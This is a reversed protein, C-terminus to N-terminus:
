FTMASTYLEAFSPDTALQVLAADKAMASASERLGCNLLLMAAGGLAANGVIKINSLMDKPLLGIRAANQINLYSGFGGALYIETLEGIEADCNKLLTCIGAFLAAKALQVARVDDQTIRVNPAIDAYTDEMFGTNDIIGLDLMCALADVIGSGCIGRPADNGIIHALMNGNVISVKDVAGCVGRMGCSIGVGEFAPGAATSCVCLKGDKYLALEGNTGIDVLLKPTASCSIDTATLACVTDAGVFASICPPIYIETDAELSLLGLEEAMLTEGFLRDALFPARSLSLAPSDSLFYLMATNGTLVCSRVASASIKATDCLERVIGDVASRILRALEYRKGILSAEIRSIVDAGLLSQPNYATASAVADGDSTYMRAALTTTGIDIAIGYGSFAPDPKFGHISAETLISAGEVASASAYVECEGLVRAVCALRVGSAIEESSLMEKEVSDLPSLAGRAYVKCKGCRGHGGCPLDISVADSLSTGSLCEKKIGNIRITVRQQNSMQMELSDTRLIEIAAAIM